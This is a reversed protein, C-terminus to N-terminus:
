DKEGGYLDLKFSSLPKKAVVPKDEIKPEEETKNLQNSSLQIRMERYEILGAKIVNKVQRERENMQSNGTKVEVIIIRKLEGESLGDFIIFDLPSGIFRADKPNFTFDPLYPALQETMHGRIVNQSRSIADKRIREEESKEWEKLANDSKDKLNIEIQKKCEELQCNYANKDNEEQTAFQERLSEVQSDYTKRDSEEALNFKQKLSEVQLDFQSKGEKIQTEYATKYNDIQTQYQEQLSALETQKWEEFERKAEAQTNIKLNTIETQENKLEVDEKEITLKLVGIEEIDKNLEETETALQKDENEINLKLKQNELKQKNLKRNFYIATGLIGVVAVVGIIIESM